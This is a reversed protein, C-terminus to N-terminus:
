ANETRLYEATVTAAGTRAVEIRWGAELFTVSAVGGQACLEALSMSLRTAEDPMLGQKMAAEHVEFAAALVQGRSSCDWVQAQPAPPPQPTAFAKLSEVFSM